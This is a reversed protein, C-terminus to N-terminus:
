ALAVAVDDAGRAASRQLAGEAVRAELLAVKAAADRASDQAQKAFLRAESAQGASEQQRRVLEQEVNRVRQDARWALGVGIVALVLAVGAIMWARRLRAGRFATGSGATVPLVVPTSPDTAPTAADNVTSDITHLRGRRGGDASERSRSWLRGRPRAERDASADRACAIRALDCRRGSGPERMLTQLHDIAESSSFLWLDRRPEALAEELLARAAADLTPARREYAVLTDVAAGQEALRAALWDRGQPGRVLLVRAGRWDHSQLTQWLAESDFQPADAAPADILEAPVGLGVLSRTTGPGPSAARTLAPWAGDPPRERSSSCCPTRASSCSM